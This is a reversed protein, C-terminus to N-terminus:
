ELIEEVITKVHKTPSCKDVWFDFGRLESMNVGLTIKDRNVKKLLIQKQIHDLSTFYNNRDLKKQSIM